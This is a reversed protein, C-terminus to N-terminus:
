GFYGVWVGWVFGFVLMLRKAPRNIKTFPSIIAALFIYFASEFIDTEFSAIAAYMLCIFIAIELFMETKNLATNFDRM